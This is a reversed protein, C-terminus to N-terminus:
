QQRYCTTEREREGGMAILDGQGMSAHQLEVHELGLSLNRVRATMGGLKCVSGHAADAAAGGAVAAGNSDVQAMVCLHLNVDVQAMSPM